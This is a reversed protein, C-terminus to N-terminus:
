SHNQQHRTALRQLILRMQPTEYRPMENLSMRSASEEEGTVV